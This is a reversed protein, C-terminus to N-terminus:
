KQQEKANNDKEIAKILWNPPDTIQSDFVDEPVDKWFEQIAASFAELDTDSVKLHEYSPAFWKEGVQGRMAELPHELFQPYTKALESLSPGDGHKYVNVVLRCADLDRFYHSSKLSWGFSELLDFLDTLNKKWVAGRAENGHHWHQVEDVLWQRLNKEWEHFFGSVISMRVSDRLETMLQHQWVGDHYAAEEFDGPDHRDPDFYQGRRELSQEAALDAEQSIAEDTFQDLLRKKAQEVYFVHKEILQSRHGSYMQFLVRDSM